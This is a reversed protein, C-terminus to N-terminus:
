EGWTSRYRSLKEQFKPSEIVAKNVVYDPVRGARIDLIADIVCGGNGMAAEETWALAHPALIVNDLTFLPNDPAPPEQEFVDIGAARIQGSRLADVLAAEDVIPGRAISILSATPKMLALRERNVLHRTEDTLNCLVVLYDSERFLTELDVLAVDSAAALTPDIYPDYAIRRMDWPAMLHFLDRAINGLGITGLTRGTVQYGMYDLKKSWEGARTIRDKEVVRHALSLIFTVGTAAMSRRVGPPTITAAVGNRTCAELDVSDYGVGFRAVLALQPANDLFAATIRPALVALADVGAALSPDLSLDGPPLFSVDVGEIGDFRSLGIDGWGVRGDSTLFDSTYRVRFQEGM